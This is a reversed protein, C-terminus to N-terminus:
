VISFISFVFFFVRREEKPYPINLQENNLVEGTKKELKGKNISFKM